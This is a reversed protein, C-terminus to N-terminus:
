LTLIAIKGFFLYVARSYNWWIYEVFVFVFEGSHEVQPNHVNGLSIFLMVIILVFVVQKLGQIGRLELTRSQGLVQELFGVVAVVVTRALRWSEWGGLVLWCCCCSLRETRRKVNPWGVWGERTKNEICMWVHWVWVHASTLKNSKM